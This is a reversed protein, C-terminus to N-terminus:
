DGAPEPQVPTPQAKPLWAAYDDDFRPDWTGLRLKAAPTFETVTDGSLSWWTRSFLAGDVAVSIVGTYMCVYTSGWDGGIELTYQPPCNDPISAWANGASNAAGAM